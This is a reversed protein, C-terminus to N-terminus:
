VLDLVESLQHRPSSPTISTSPNAVRARLGAAAYKVADLTESLEFPVGALDAFAKEASESLEAQRELIQAARIFAPALAPQVVDSNFDRLALKLARAVQQFQDDLDHASSNVAELSAINAESPDRRVKESAALILRRGAGHGHESLASTLREYETQLGRLSELEKPSVLEAKMRRLIKKVNATHKCRGGM